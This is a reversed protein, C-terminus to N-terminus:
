MAAGSSSCLVRETGGLTGLKPRRRFFLLIANVRGALLIRTAEEAHRRLVAIWQCDLDTRLTQLTAGNKLLEAPRM